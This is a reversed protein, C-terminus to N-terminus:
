AAGCVDRTPSIGLAASDQGSTAPRCYPLVDLLFPLLVRKMRLDFLRGHAVMVSIQARDGIAHAAQTTSTSLSSADLRSQAVAEVLHVHAAVGDSCAKEDDRALRL